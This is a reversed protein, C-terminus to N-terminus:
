APIVGERILRREVLEASILVMPLGNGPVTSAGVFYLDRNVKSRNGPRMFASQFLDHSLGFAAGRDLHLESKWENPGRRKLARIRSPDLAVTDRLRAFVAAELKALSAEDCPGDLNPTPILLMLNSHGRPAVASDSRASICAYFSPDDPIRLNHFLADLNGRFDSSFFVNHHDLTELDGEYDLYLVHASCSYRLKRSPAESALERAAYPMDANAIVADAEIREGSELVVAKGEIFKVGTNLRIEAGRDQALGALM